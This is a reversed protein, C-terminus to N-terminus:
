VAAGASLAAARRGSAAPRERQRRRRQPRQPIKGGSPEANTRGMRRRIGLTQAGRARAFALAYEGADLPQYDGESLLQPHERRLQLARYTLLLKIEGSRYEALTRQAASFPAEAELGSLLQERRAYEVPRRNDPDVLSQNWLECGQYVDPVGPATLRILAASLSNQAGYPSILEHFAEVSSVFDANALLERVASLVRAEYAEDPRAWSSRLKAERLAKLMYASLREPLDNRQGELPWCGILNQFFTNLDAPHPRETAPLLGQWQALREAWLAPMESLVSLRARTDEGRKTDHTSLALLAAPWEAARELCQQHFAEPANGFLAPDGGVENLSLLRGYRYFATDEAGKATIPGTLQQFKLTVLRQAESKGRLLTDELFALAPALEPRRERSRELARLLHADDDRSREGDPRVYSRYM